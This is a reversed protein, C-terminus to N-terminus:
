LAQPGRFKMFFQLPWAQAGHAELGAMGAETGADRPNKSGAKKKGIM